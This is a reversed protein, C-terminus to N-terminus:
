PNSMGTTRATIFMPSSWALEGDVQVVRVWYPQEGDLPAEDTWTFHHDASGDTEPARDVTIRMDVGGVEFVIPKEAVDGVRIRLEAELPAVDLVLTADDNADLLMIVGDADGSTGSSWQVKDDSVQRLWDSPVDFAWPTASRIAGGELRVGGDWRVHRGRTDVRAGSWAIRVRESVAAVQESYVVSTGRLVDIRELPATASVKVSLTPRADTVIREGMWHEGSRVELAIREGTTAFCRRARLAEWVGERTIERAYVGAFGGKVPLKGSSTPMSNGPRGSHDDSAGVFGVRLGRELAERAFWEFRGHVSCIEIVPCFREDLFSLDARRGGVHAVGIVDDRGQFEAWLESVPYRDTKSDWLNSVQWHSSRFLEGEDHSYIINHDGGAPTNGSWEYSLFTVFRHPEHFDRATNRTREWLETTIQFDNGSHVVFDLVGIERAYHYFSELSGTGVTGGSQGQTDGWLLRHESPRDAVVIPNSVARRGRDDLAVVRHVGPGTLALGEIRKVGGDDPTIQITDPAGVVGELRVEASVPTPNGWEDEVRVVVWASGDPGIASPAVVTLHDDPGPVVALSPSDELAEFIGTGFSDILVRFEFAEEPYSQARAGRSGASTDGLTITIEDGEALSGDYVQLWLSRSWPRVGGFPEYSARIRASSTHAITVYDDAAPDKLQPQGWDTVSRIVVKLAGSNDVGYRGIRITITWTGITGASVPAAPSISASGIWARQDEVTRDREEM